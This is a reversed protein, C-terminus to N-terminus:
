AVAELAAGAATATEVVAAGDFSQRVTSGDAFTVVLERYGCWYAGWELSEVGARLEARALINGVEALQGRELEVGELRWVVTEDTESRTGLYFDDIVGARWCKHAHEYVAVVRAGGKVKCRIAPAATLKWTTAM